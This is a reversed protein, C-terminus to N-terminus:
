YLLDERVQWSNLIERHLNYCPIEFFESRPESIGESPTSFDTQLPFHGAISQFDHSCFKQFNQAEFELYLNEEWIKWVPPPFCKKGGWNRMNAVQPKLM